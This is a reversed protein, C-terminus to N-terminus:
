PINLGSASGGSPSSVKLADKGKKRLAENPDGGEAASVLPAVPEEAKPPPPPPPAKPKKSCM